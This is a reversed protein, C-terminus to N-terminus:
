TWSRSQRFMTEAMQRTSMLVTQPRVPRKSRAITHPLLGRTFHPQSVRYMNGVSRADGLAPDSKLIPDDEGIYEAKAALLKHLLNAVAKRLPVLERNMLDTFHGIKRSWNTDLAFSKKENRRELMSREHEFHDFYEERRRQLEMEQRKLFERHLRAAEEYRRSGMLHREKDRLDLLDASLRTFEVPLVSPMSADHKQLRRRGIATTRGEERDKKDNLKKLENQWKEEAERLRNREYEYQHQILAVRDAKCVYLVKELFFDSIERIFRDLEDAAMLEAQTALVRRRERLVTMIKFYLINTPCDIMKTRKFREIQEDIKTIDEASLSEYDQFPIQRVTPYLKPPIADM